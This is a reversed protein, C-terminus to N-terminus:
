KARRTRETRETDREQAERMRGALLSKELRLSLLETRYDLEIGHISKLIAEAGDRIGSYRFCIDLISYQCEECESIKKLLLDEEKVLSEYVDQM